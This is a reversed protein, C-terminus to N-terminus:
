HNIMKAKMLDKNKLVIGLNRGGMNEKVEIRLQKQDELTFKPLVCIIKREGYAEVVDQHGQILIAEQELEQSATRKMQKHDQIFFRLSELEYNIATQNKLHLLVYFLNDQIYLGQMDMLVGFKKAPKLVKMKPLQKLLRINEQIREENIFDDNEVSPDNKPNQKSILVNLVKPNQEYSLMFSHLLGDSTIVTLNTPEFDAKASKIQLIHKAGEAKQVLIDGSGRDVGRISYPFLINTTKNHSIGLKTIEIEQAMLTNQIWMMQFIFIMLKAKM